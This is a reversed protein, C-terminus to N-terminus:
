RLSICNCKLKQCVIQRDRLIFASNFFSISSTIFNKIQTLFQKRRVHRTISIVLVRQSWSIKLNKWLLDHPITFYWCFEVLVWIDHKREEAASPIWRVGGTATWLAGWENPSSRTGMSKRQKREFWLFCTWRNVDGTKQKAQRRRREGHGDGSITRNSFPGHVDLIEDYIRSSCFTRWPESWNRESQNMSNEQWIPRSYLCELREIQETKYFRPCPSNDNVQRSFSRKPYLYVRVVM